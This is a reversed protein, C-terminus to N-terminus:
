RKGGAARGAEYAARLWAAVSVAALPRFLVLDAAVVAHEDGDTLVEGLDGDATRAALQVLGSDQLVSVLTARAAAPRLAAARAREAAARETEARAAEEAAARQAALAAAEAELEARVHPDRDADYPLADDQALLFAAIREWEALEAGSATGDDDVDEHRAAYRAQFAADQM